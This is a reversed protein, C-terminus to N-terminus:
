PVTTATTTPSTGLPKGTATELTDTAVTAPTYTMETGSSLPTPALDMSPKGTAPDIGTGIQALEKKLVPKHRQELTAM